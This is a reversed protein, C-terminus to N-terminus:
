FRFTIDAGATRPEGVFNLVVAAFISADFAFTKYRTDTVNRVWAAVEMTEAEDRWSLRINHLIYSRQAIAYQPLTKDAVDPVGRGENADFFIDDSWAIDYRPALTGYRGFNLPWELTGSVKFEPANPLRNGTYVVEQQRPAQIQSDFIQITNVFDLFQSQLWGFRMSVRLDAWQEPMWEWDQLPVMDLEIEAGYQEADNANVIELIPPRAFANEFLFLQYNKYKYYFIAGRAAIRNDLWTSRLGAELSDVTEPDVPRSGVANANYHGGKWGRSYKWYASSEDSFRYTLSLFGTPATWLSDQQPGVNPPGIDQENMQFKKREYNYRVGADLSFDELFDWAFGAYVAFSTVEQRYDRLPNIGERTTKFKSTYELNEQLFYGGLEWQLEGNDSEGTAKLEQFFQWGQDAQQSEFLVNPTFDQDTGRSRSYADYGTITQLEVPGLFGVDGLTMTGNLSTGWTERTTQGVFNYDGHYPQLDLPRDILNQALIPGALLNCARTDIPPATNCIPFNKKIERFERSTDPEAYSLETIRGLTESTGMAQGLTSQQDLKSGHVSLLWDMDMVDPQLRFLGRMAWNGQDGVAAPLGAPVFPFVPIGLRLKVQEGCVPTPEIEDPPIRDAVPPAGGCRNTM